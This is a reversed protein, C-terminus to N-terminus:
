ASAKMQIVESSKIGAASLIFAELKEVAPRLREVDTVVYHRGMVDDSRSKHGMLKKAAYVSVDLGELFTAFSRRLDHMSHKIASNKVVEALAKKPDHLHKNPDLSSWFVWPTDPKIEARTELMGLVHPGIPLTKPEYNKTDPITLTKGKLDVNEWRLNLAEGRRLGLLLCILFLDRITERDQSNKDNKLALVAKFWAPLSTARIVKQRPLERFWQRKHGLTRVPNEPLIERGYEAQAFYLLSRLFRMAANAQAEGHKQAVELHRKSVLAPTIENVAKSHWAKLYLEYYRQYDQKTRPALQRVAKFANYADLLTPAGEARNRPDIGNEMDRLVNKAAKRAEEVTLRPYIGVTYRITKGRVKAEAFFAKRQAGIRVGFGPLETDWILAQGKEPHDLGDVYTKTLKHTGM